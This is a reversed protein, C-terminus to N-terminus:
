RFEFSEIRLKRNKNWLGLSLVVAYVWLIWSGLAMSAEMSLTPFILEHYKICLADLIIGPLSMLVVSLVREDQTLKFKKFVPTVIFYLLPIVGIYFSAMIIKNEILFFHHGAFSFPLTALLWVTFGYALCFKQYKM